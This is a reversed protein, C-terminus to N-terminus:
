SRQEDQLDAATLLKGNFYNTGFTGRKLTVDPVRYVGITTGGIIQVALEDPLEIYTFKPLHNSSDNM